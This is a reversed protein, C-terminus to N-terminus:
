HFPMKFYDAVQTDVNTMDIQLPDKIRDFVILGYADRLKDLDTIEFSYDKKIFFLFRTNRVEIIRLKPWRRALLRHAYKQQCLFNHTSAEFAQLQTIAKIKENQLSDPRYFLACAETVILIKQYTSPPKTKITTKEKPYALQDEHNNKTCSMLVLFFVPITLLKKM